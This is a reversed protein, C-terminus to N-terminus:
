ARAAAALEGGLRRQWYVIARRNAELASREAGGFRLRQREDVLRDLITRVDLSSVDGAAPTHTAMHM